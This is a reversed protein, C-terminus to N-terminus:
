KDKKLLSHGIKHLTSQTTEVEFPREKMLVSQFSNYLIECIEKEKVINEDKDM